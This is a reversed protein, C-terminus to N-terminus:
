CVYLCGVSTVAVEKKFMVKLATYLYFYFAVLYRLHVLSRNVSAHVGM